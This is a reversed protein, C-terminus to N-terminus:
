PTEGTGPAEAVKAQIATVCATNAIDIVSCGRSLDNGPKALGQLIPGIAQAGALREVLKYGINGVGLDPFILVNARGGVPSDKCKREAIRPVIAADAQLEGDSKIEPHAEAFLTAAERMKDVVAGKGSGKTSYSLFAVMPEVDLLGRCTEASAAAIDVLMEPTPDPVLASDSFVFAGDAGLEHAHTVMIFSSSVTKIGQKPRIVQLMARILDATSSVSGGVMGDCRGKRVCMAAYYINQSMIEDAKEPTMGKHKRLAVYAEVYDAREADDAPNIVEAKSLKVDLRSADAAIKRPDGILTVRALQETLLVDAAELVRDDYTEPLCINKDASRAHERIRPLVDM